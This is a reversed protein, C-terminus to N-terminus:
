ERTVDGKLAFRSPPIITKVTGDAATLQVDYTYEGPPLDNTDMHTLTIVATGDVFISITKELRQPVLPAAVTMTVKDGAVFPRPTGDEEQCSIVLTETDGRIMSLDTGSIIM